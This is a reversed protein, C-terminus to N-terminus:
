SKKRKLLIKELGMMPAEFALSTVYAIIYAAVLNGFFTWIVDVTSFVYLQERGFYYVYMVIPHVLYGTYTLRSLPIIARWSLLTNVFGGNGTACAFVVWAVCAGWATRHVANYFAAADVTLHHGNADDYLGYLVALAVATAIAWGLLTVTKSMKYKCDTKYLLYGVWLGVIYPGIRTYPKMYYKLMFDMTKLPNSMMSAPFANEKSIVGSAIFTTLLFTLASATGAKWSYFFPMFILPSLIYFQMDNALYWSWGMCMKDTNVLNNIYLLNTWWYECNTPEIGGQPWFPGEGWYRFLPVYVMIVLMYVPTLRWFRHFFFMLWNIKGNNRSLEKLVLYSVLLGSLTFFSDVSVTANSIAQFTWHKTARASYDAMNQAASMAFALSHGLIVWTMSFFRIGHICSISGPPQTVSLLKVTNSYVSFSLLMQPAVGTSRSVRAADKDMLLPTQETSQSVDKINVTSKVDEASRQKEKEWKPMQVWMIDYMTAMLMVAVFLSLVLLVIIATDTYEQKKEQCTSAAVRFTINTTELAANLLATVDAGSCSSPFCVGIKIGPTSAGFAQPQVPGPTLPLFAMCYQGEFLQEAETENQLGPYVKARTKICERYSGVWMLQGGMINSDPKAAADLMAMAWDDGAAAQTLILGTHNSCLDSPVKETENGPDANVQLLNTVPVDEDQLYEGLQPLQDPNISRALEKITAYYFDKHRTREQTSHATLLVDTYSITEPSVGYLSTVLTACICLLTFM